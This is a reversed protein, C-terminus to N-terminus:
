IAGIKLCVWIGVAQFDEHLKKMKAARQKVLEEELRLQEAKSTGAKPAVSDVSLSRLRRAPFWPAM